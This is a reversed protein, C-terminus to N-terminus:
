LTPEEMMAKFDAESLAPLKCDNLHNRVLWSMCVCMHGSIHNQEEIKIKPACIFCDVIAAGLAERNVFTTSELGLQVPAFWTACHHHGHCDDFVLPICSLKNAAAKVVVCAIKANGQEIM